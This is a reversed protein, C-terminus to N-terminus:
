VELYIKLRVVLTEITHYKWASNLRVVSIIINIFVVGASESTAGDSGSMNWRRFLLASAM